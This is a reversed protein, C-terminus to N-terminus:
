GNVSTQFFPGGSGLSLTAPSFLSNTAAATSKWWTPPQQYPDDINWPNPTSGMNGIMTMPFHGTLDVEPSNVGQLPYYAKLQGRRVLLPSVGSNLLSIDQASLVSSWFAVDCLSGNLPASTNNFSGINTFTWSPATSTTAESVGAVGDLYVIRLVNSTVVTACHHWTTTDTIAVPSWACKDNVVGCPDILVRGAGNGYSNAGDFGFTMYATVGSNCTSAFWQSTTTSACKYWCSISCPLSTIVPLTNAFYNSTSGTNTRAM